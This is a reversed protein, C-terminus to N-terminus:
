NVYRALVTLFVDDLDELVYPEERMQVAYTIMVGCAMMFIAAMRPTRRESFASVLAPISFAGIVIGLVFILDIDM